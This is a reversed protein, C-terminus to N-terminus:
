EAKRHAYSLVRHMQWRGDVWQWVIAFSAAGVRKEPGDGQREYFYHEGFAMAGFGPVPDVKWSSQVLQRRSRWADPAKRAACAKAYGDVWSHRDRSVLGDKDHYFEFKATVMDAMRMPDCGEFFMTFIKSDATRIAETLAPGSPMATPATAVIAYIFATLGTLDHAEMASSLDAITNYIYYLPVLLTLRLLSRM